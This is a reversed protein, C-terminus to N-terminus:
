NVATKLGKGAKFGVTKQAKITIAEGTKPNRGQREARHRVEFTGFGTIAVNEGGALTTQLTDFVADVLKAAATDSLEINRAKFEEQAKASFEGKNM